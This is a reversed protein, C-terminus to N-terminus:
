ESTQGRGAPHTDLAAGDHAAPSGAGAQAVEVRPGVLGPSSLLSAAAPTVFATGDSQIAIGWLGLEAIWGLGRQCGMLLAATAVVDAMVTTPAAATLSALEEPSRGTRPDVLHHAGPRAPSPRKWGGSTCVALNTGSLVGWLQGPRLPHEVGVRWVGGDPDRGSVFVDGGADIAFGPYATLAARALDVALGKAVAGLDLVLPHDLRVEPVDQRMRLHVDRFSVPQTPAHPSVVSRGTRYHRHFGLQELTGGVTPDFLGDTMAAVECAVVLAQYLVPPVPVWRGSTRGLRSLASDPDFRSCAAEVTRMAAFAHRIDSAAKEQDKAGVVRITVVTGM